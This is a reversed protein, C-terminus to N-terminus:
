PNKKKKNMVVEKLTKDALHAPLRWDPNSPPLTKMNETGAGHGMPKKKLSHLKLQAIARLNEPDPLTKKRRRDGWWKNSNGPDM